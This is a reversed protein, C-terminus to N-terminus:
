SKNLENVLKTMAVILKDNVEKSGKAQLIAALRMLEPEEATEKRKRAAVAVLETGEVKLGHGYMKKSERSLTSRMVALSRKDDEIDFRAWVAVITAHDKAELLQRIFPALKGGFLVLTYLTASADEAMEEMSPITPTTM